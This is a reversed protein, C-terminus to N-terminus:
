SPSWLGPQPDLSTTRVWRPVSIPSISVLVQGFEPQELLTLRLSISSYM